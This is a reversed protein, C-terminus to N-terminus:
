GTAVLINYFFYLHRVLISFFHEVTALQPQKHNEDKFFIM